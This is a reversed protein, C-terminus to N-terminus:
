LLLAQCPRPVGADSRCQTLIHPSRNRRGIIPSNLLNRKLSTAPNAELEMWIPFSSQSKVKGEDRERVHYM